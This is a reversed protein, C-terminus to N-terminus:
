ESSSINGYQRQLKYSEDEYFTKYWIETVRLQVNCVYDKDCSQIGNHQGIYVLNARIKFKYIGPGLEQQSIPIGQYNFINMSKWNGKLFLITDNYKYNPRVPVWDERSINKIYMHKIDEPFLDIYETNLKDKFLENLHQELKNINEYLKEDQRKPIVFKICEDDYRIANAYINMEDVLIHMDKENEYAINFYLNNNFIYHSEIKLSM